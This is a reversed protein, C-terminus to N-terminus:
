TASEIICSSVYTFSSRNNAHIYVLVYTRYPSWTSLLKTLTIICDIYEYLIYIQIIFYRLINRDAPRIVYLRIWCDSNACATKEFTKMQKQDVRLDHTYYKQDVRLDNM